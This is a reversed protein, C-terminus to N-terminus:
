DFDLQQAEGLRSDNLVAKQGRLHTITQEHRPLDNAKAFAAGQRHTPASSFNGCKKAAAV